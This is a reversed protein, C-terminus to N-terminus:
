SLRCRTLETQKEGNYEKHEKITGTIKKTNESLSNSTKWVFVNNNKDTIKYIGVTGFQTYWSTVCRWDAVEITIRQGVEGVYESVKAREAEAKKRAEFELNKTYTPFLSALIGTNKFTIYDLSCVTILNHMYNNTEKQESIWALANKVMEVTKENFKDFGVRHMEDILEDRYKSNAIWGYDCRLYSMARDRTGGDIEYGFHRVCEAAYLLFDVKQIYKEVNCGIIPTDGKILEDYLSIYYAAAEASLGHTFDALCSKGVEKFEGTEVNMVIFAYKIRKNGCHECVLSGNYYRKPVEVDDVVKNIINGKDTHEVSAIFRWGNIVALGEVDVVVLRVTYKGGNEDTLTKFEEGVKKFHFDCGYKQCKNQIRIMKKTLREMNGEFIKFEM